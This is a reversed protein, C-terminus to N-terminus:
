SVLTLNGFNSDVKRQYSEVVNLLALAGLRDQTDLEVVKELITKGKDIKGLRLNLYGAGKLLLLYFRVLTMSQM